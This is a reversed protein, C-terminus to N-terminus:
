SLKVYIYGVYFGVLDPCLVSGDWWCNGEQRGLSAEGSAGWGQRWLYGRDQSREGYFLRAQGQAQASGYKCVAKDSAPRGILSAAIFIRISINPPRSCENRQILYRSFVFHWTGLSCGFLKGFHVLAREWWCRM